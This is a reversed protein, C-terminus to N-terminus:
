RKACIELAAICYKRGGMYLGDIPGDFGSMGGSQLHLTRHFVENTYCKGGEAQCCDGRYHGICSGAPERLRAQGLVMPRIVVGATTRLLAAQFTAAALGSRWVFQMSAPDDRGKQQEPWRQGGSQSARIM